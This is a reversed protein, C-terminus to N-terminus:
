GGGGADGPRKGASDSSLLDETTDTLETEAEPQEGPIRVAEEAESSDGVDAVTRPKLEAFQLLALVGFVIFLCYGRM